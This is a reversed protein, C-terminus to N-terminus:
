PPSLAVRGNFWPKVNHQDNSAVDVIHGPMLSRVHSTLVENAITRNSTTGRLALYTAGSSAAAIAVGAVALRWWQRRPPQLAYESIASRIRAKLVDPAQYQVLNEKLLRSLRDDSESM